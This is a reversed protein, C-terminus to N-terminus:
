GIVKALEGLYSPALHMYRQTTIISAHGALAQIKTVGVDKMALRSFCTHRLTHVRVRDDDSRGKNLGAKDAADTLVKRYHSYSYPFYRQDYYTSSPLSSLATVSLPVTRVKRGKGVVQILENERDIPRVSLAESIRLGTYIQFRTLDKWHDMPLADILSHEEEDTLFRIRTQGVKLRKPFRPVEDLLGEDKAFQFVMRVITRRLNSTAPGVEEEHTLDMFYERLQRSDIGHIPTEPSWYTLFRRLHSRYGETTRPDVVHYRLFNEIVESLASRESTITPNPLSRGEVVRRKAEKEYTRAQEETDFTFTRGGIRNTCWRGNPFKKTPQTRTPM